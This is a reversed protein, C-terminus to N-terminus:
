GAVMSSSYRRPSASLEFWQILLSLSLTVTLNLALVSPRPSM